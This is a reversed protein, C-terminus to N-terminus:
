KMYEKMRQECRKIIDKTEEESLIHAWPVAATPTECNLGGYYFRATKDRDTDNWKDFLTPRIHKGAKCNVFACKGFDRWPRALYVTEDEAGDSILNCNVFHFGGEQVLHHCPAAIYGNGRKEYRSVIECGLFYAEAGGFIFDVTGGIRCNKFLHLSTGDMYLEEEPIFGRYRVVLDDPFPALFLTDQTSCLNVNEACFIKANVSLAVCQGVTEPSTNANEVTLNCMKVREGTVGVTYTRFTNYEKGDAHIKRAYDDYTIITTERDEGILTLDDACIRLKTRYVGKKLFITAPEAIADIIKQLDDQPSLFLEKMRFEM